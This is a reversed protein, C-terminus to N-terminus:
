VDMAVCAALLPKVVREFPGAQCWQFVDKSVVRQLVLVIIRQAIGACPRFKDALAHRL